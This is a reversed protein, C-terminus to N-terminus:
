QGVADIVAIGWPETVRPLGNGDDTLLTGVRGRM